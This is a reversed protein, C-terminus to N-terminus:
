FPVIGSKSTKVYFFPIVLSQWGGRVMRYMIIIRNSNVIVRQAVFRSMSVGVLLIGCVSFFFRTYNIRAVTNLFTKTSLLGSSKLFKLCGKRCDNTREAM